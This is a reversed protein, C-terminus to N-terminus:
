VQVVQDQVAVPGGHKLTHLSHHMFAGLAASALPFAIEPAKTGSPLLFSPTSAYTPPSHFKSHDSIPASFDRPGFSGNLALHAGMSEAVKDLFRVKLDPSLSDIINTLDGISPPVATAAISAVPLEVDASHCSPIASAASCSSSSPPVLSLLNGGPTRPTGSLILLGEDLLNDEETELLSENQFWNFDKFDNATPVQDHEGRYEDLMFSSDTSTMRQLPADISKPLQVKRKKGVDVVTEDSDNPSILQLKRVANSLYEVQHNLEELRETLTSVQSKLDTVEKSSASEPV